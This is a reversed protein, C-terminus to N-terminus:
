YVFRRFRLPCVIQGSSIFLINLVLFFFGGINKKIIMWRYDESGIEYGGKRWYNFTLRISWLISVAAALDVREAQLGVAHAYIAYHVIWFTPLLSWFRDVQSYNKNVESAVFFLPCMAAAIAVASILPNTSAYLIQLGRPNTITQLVQQPLDYLQPIYPYVTRELDVTEILSKVVPLAM